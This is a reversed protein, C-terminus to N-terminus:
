HAAGVASEDVGSCFGEERAIKSMFELVGQFPNRISPPTGQDSMEEIEVNLQQGNPRAKPTVPPSRPEVPLPRAYNPSMPTGSSSAQRHNEPSVPTRSCSVQRSHRPSAPSGPANAGTPRSHDPTTPIRSPGATAPRSRNPKRTASSLDLTIPRNLNFQVLTARSPKMTLATMVVPSEPDMRSRISVPSGDSSTEEPICSSAVPRRTPYDPLTFSGLSPSPTYLEGGYESTPSPLSALNSGFGFEL